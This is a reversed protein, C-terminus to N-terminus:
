LRIVMFSEAHTYHKSKRGVTRALSRVWKPMTKSDAIQSRHSRLAEIKSDLTSKVNEFYNPEDFNVLFLYEVCHAPGADPVCLQDPSLPYVADITIEGVARHDLHHVFNRFTSYYRSPDLGMVVDPKLKRILRVLKKKAALNPILECDNYGFFFVDKVGLVKIAAREEKKRISVLERPTLNRNGANGKNGNTYVVYYVTAGAKVAKAITAGAAFDLDDPHANVGLVIKNKWSFSKM